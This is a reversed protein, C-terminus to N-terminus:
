NKKLHQLEYQIVQELQRADAGVVRRGNVFLTPTSNVELLKGNAVSADVAAAAEQSTMCAKFEDTKLGAQGAYDVSKDWANAASIVDQKDYLYDYMKWFAKPDQRYACRGALAATRAWPHLQELPFDKFALRVQPYNPLLGRLVEHLQRCVPCEFDAFEVITVTANSAGTVPAAKLDLKARNEAFGDKGMDVMEGRLLYKGDRSVWMKVDENNEGITVTINTELLSAVGSEKFDGVTLKVDPGFAFMNRLYADVKKKLEEPAPSQARSTQTSLGVMAIGLLILMRLRFSMKKV